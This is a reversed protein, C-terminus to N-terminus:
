YWLLCGSACLCGLLAGAAVDSPFHAGLAIRSFGVLTALLLAGPLFAASFHGLMIAIAFATTTHGSPFSFTDPMRVPLYALQFSDCPRTRVLLRKTLHSVIQALGVALGGFLVHRSGRPGGLLLLAVGIPCWGYGDGFRTSWIMVQRLVGLRLWTNVALCIACEWRGAAPFRWAYRTRM